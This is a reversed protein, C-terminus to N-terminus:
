RGVQNLVIEQSDRRKLIGFINLGLNSSSFEVVKKFCFLLFHHQSFNEAHFILQDHASPERLYGIARQSIWHSESIDLQYDANLFFWNFLAPSWYQLMSIFAQIVGVPLTNHKYCVLSKSVDSAQSCEICHLM